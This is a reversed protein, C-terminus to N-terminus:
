NNPANGALSDIRGTKAHEQVRAIWHHGYVLAWIFEYTYWAMTHRAQLASHIRHITKLNLMGAFPGSSSEVVESFARLFAPRGFTIAPDVSFGSKPRYILEQPVSRALLKKLVGKDERLHAPWAIAEQLAFTVLRPQLFPFNLIKGANELVAAHKLCHAGGNNLTVGMIKPRIELPLPRAVSDLWGNLTEAIHRRAGRPARYAIDGLPHLAIAFSPYPWLATRRLVRLRHEMPTTPRAWFRGAQYVSGAIRRAVAPVRYTMHTHRWKAVGGFLSDANIGDWILSEGPFADIVQRALVSTPMMSFDNVTNYSDFMESLTQMADEPDYYFEHFNLKLVAAMRRAVETERDKPGRTSHALVIDRWGMQAARAALLGSDVGGSFFLVGRGQPSSARMAEDILEGVRDMRQDDAPGATPVRTDDTFYPAPTEELAFSTLNVTLTSGLAIRRIKEWFSFPAVPSSMELQILLGYPDFSMGPQVLLRVDDSIWLGNHDRRYFVHRFSSLPATVSLKNHGLQIYTDASDGLSLTMERQERVAAEAGFPEWVRTASAPHPDLQFMVCRRGSMRLDFVKRATHGPRLKPPVLDAESDSLVGLYFQAM